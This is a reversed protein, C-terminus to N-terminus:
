NQFNGSRWTSKIPCLMFTFIKQHFIEVFVYGLTMELQNPFWPALYWPCHSRRAKWSVSQRHWFFQSSFCFILAVFINLGLEHLDCSLGSILKSPDSCQMAFMPSENNFNTTWFWIFVQRFFDKQWKIYDSALLLFGTEWLVCQIAIDKPKVTSCWVSM